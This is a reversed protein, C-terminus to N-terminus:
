TFQNQRALYWHIQNHKFLSFLDLLVEIFGNKGKIVNYFLTRIIIEVDNRRLYRNLTNNEYTFSNMYVLKYLPCVFGVVTNHKHGSLSHLGEHKM